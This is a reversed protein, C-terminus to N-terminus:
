KIAMKVEDQGTTNDLLIDSEWKGTRLNYQEDQNIIYYRLDKEIYFGEKKSFPIKKKEEENKM